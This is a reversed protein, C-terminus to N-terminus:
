WNKSTPPRSINQLHPRHLCCTPNRNTNGLARGIWGHTSLNGCRCSPVRTTPHWNCCNSNLRNPHLCCCSHKPIQYCPSTHLLRELNSHGCFRFSCHLNANFSRLCKPHWCCHSPNHGCFRRPHFCCHLHAHFNRNCPNTKSHSHVREDTSTHSFPM